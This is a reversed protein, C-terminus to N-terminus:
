YHIIQYSDSGNKVTVCPLQVERVAFFCRSCVCLGM